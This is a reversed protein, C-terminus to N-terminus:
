MALLRAVAFAAAAAAIGVGTIKLASWFPNVGTISSKCFGVIFLCAPTVIASIKLAELADAIFFYPILPIIGGAIYSLGINLASKAARKPDPKIQNLQYQDIFASWRKKDAERELMAQDQLENGLDLNAFFDRAKKSEDYGPEAEDEKKFHDQESKEVFYGGLSMAISGGAIAVIGAMIIFSSKDFAASLGAALIFPITLGDGLGIVLDRVFGSKNERFDAKHNHFLSKMIM